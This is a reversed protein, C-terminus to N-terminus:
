HLTGFFAECHTVKSQIYEESEGRINGVQTINVFGAQKLFGELESLTYIDGDPTVCFLWVASLLPNERKSREEDAIVENLVISGGPLLSTHVRKLLNVADIAGFYHAIHGLFAVDFENQGFDVFRADGPLLTVQNRVGLDQAIKGAVELVPLWDILTIRTCPHLRALALSSIGYGCAVDLVHLGDRARIGLLRWMSDSEEISRELMVQKPAHARAWHTAFRTDNWAKVLPRKGTRVADALKGHGEWAMGFMLLDGMYTPKGPLLYLEAIPVLCYLEGDKTLLRLACLANLLRRTGTLDWHESQSLAEATRKGAQIKDWVGLRLAAELIAAKWNAYGIDILARADTGAYSSQELHM